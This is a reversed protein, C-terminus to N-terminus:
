PSEEGHRIKAWYSELEFKPSNERDHCGTCRDRARTYHPTRVEPKHAHARSPGHCSECGVHRREPSRRVSLFGGPLGYGDTHCRQCEPDVHAGKARLSEFAHAHRSEHWLRCDDEHCERCSATGAVHYDPQGGLLPEVFSTEQPTFDREALEAYFRNLNDIQAPHDAFSGDLEEVRGTWQRPSASAPSDLRVLFKGQNTASTLLVPGMSQPPIPQGTPGGVVADVEPLMEALRRLNDEELYALVIVADRENASQLVDLVARRPPSVRLEPTAFEEGLVGIVLVRCGGTEVLAHSPAVAADNAERVNASVFPAGRDRALRQLEDPGLAAEAAGINHASIGMALEGRLIAEFKVRDYPSTGAPAGGADLVILRDGLEERLGEVYTGRRPLGGSQNSACGCPVIWGATDGSVVVALPVAPRDPEGSIVVALPRRPPADSGFCGVFGCCAAVWLVNLWYGTAL